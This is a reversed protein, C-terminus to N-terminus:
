QRGYNDDIAGRKKVLYVEPWSPYSKFGSDESLAWRSGSLSLAEIRQAVSGMACRISANLREPTTFSSVVCFSGLHPCFTQLLYFILEWILFGWRLIIGILSLNGYTELVIRLTRVSRLSATTQITEVQGRRELDKLGQVLGKTVTGLAGIVIPIVTVKMSWLKKWNELLTLASIERKEKM